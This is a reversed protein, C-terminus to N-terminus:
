KYFSKIIFNNDEQMILASNDKFLYITQCKSYNDIISECISLLNIHTLTMNDHKNLNFIKRAITTM